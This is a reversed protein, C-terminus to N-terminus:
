GPPVPSAPPANSPRPVVGRDAPSPSPRPPNPSPVFQNLPQTPAFLAFVSTHDLNAVAVTDGRKAAIAYPPPGVWDGAGGAASPDWRVVSIQYQDVTAEPKIPLQVVLPPDWQRDSPMIVATAYITGRCCQALKDMQDQTLNENMLISLQSAINDQCPPPPACTGAALTISSGDANSITRAEAVRPCACPKAALATATAGAASPLAGGNPAPQTAAPTTAAAPTGAQPVAPSCGQLLACAFALALSISFVLKRRSM